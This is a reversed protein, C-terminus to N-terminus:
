PKREVVRERRGVKRKAAEVVWNLPLLVCKHIARLDSREEFLFSIKGFKTQLGLSTYIKIMRTKKFLVFGLSCVKAKEQM